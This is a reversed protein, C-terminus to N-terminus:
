TITQHKSRCDSTKTLVSKWNRVETLLKNWVDSLQYSGEDQNKKNCKRTWIAERILHRSKSRDGQCQWLRVKIAPIIGSRLSKAPAEQHGQRANSETKLSNVTLSLLLILRRHVENVQPHTSALLRAALCFMLSAIAWWSMSLSFCAIASAEPTSLSLSSAWAFFSRSKRM